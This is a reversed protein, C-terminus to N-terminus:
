WYTDLIPPQFATYVLDSEVNELKQDLDVSCLDTLISLIVIFHLHSLQGPGKDVYAM